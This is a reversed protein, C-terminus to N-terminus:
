CGGKPRRRLAPGINRAEVEGKRISTWGRLRPLVLVLDQGLGHGPM